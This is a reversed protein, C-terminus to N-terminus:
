NSVTADYFVETVELPLPNSSQVVVSVGTQGQRGSAVHPRLTAEVLGTIANPPSGWPENSRPRPEDLKDVSPGVLFGRSNNVRLVVKAAQQPKAVTWGGQQTQIALPLTEITATFPLGITVLSAPDPLTVSGGSVTLGDVVAGDALAVVTEGELHDLNIFKTAPTSLSYTVACDLYCSSPVDDTLASAMRELFLRSVGNITRRVTLYLRDEGFESVSCVSEVTGGLDCLTWGWVQHEQQWTFMLLNGDDRAAAVVSLPEGMYAWSVINHGKFFHPSFITLDNSQYGDVDFQYGLSRIANGVATQYFAVSDIVLPNLRSGGRGNQRQTVINTPSIFDDNGGNISFVSDSTLALLQAMSVLQNVANVKGAVLAFSGADSAQLPRSIDANEYEGSKSFYVANPHNNTRAWLLRQQFFSVTSPFDNSTPFPTQGQVPGVTYDPGINDDRFNLQTTTGIYGFDGTNEAKYIIYREAGTVASWSVTNYNKVLNLDNNATVSSSPRSEQGTDTAVASVCYVADRPYFSAGSNASDTNPQTVTVSVGAPAALTPAFTVTSFAWDTSDTEVLKTPVVQLHALYMTDASQEHDLDALQSGLYPSAIRYVRAVSM